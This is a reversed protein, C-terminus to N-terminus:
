RNNCKPTDLDEVISEPLDGQNEICNANSSVLYYCVIGLLVVSLVEQIYLFHKSPSM